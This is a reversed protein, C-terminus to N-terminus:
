LYLVDSGALGEPFREAIAVLRETITDIESGTLGRPCLIIGAHPKQSAIADRSLKIFHCIDMTVLARREATAYALQEPDSRAINGVEQASVTDYGRQRLREAIRNSLNADLYFKV